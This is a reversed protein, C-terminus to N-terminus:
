RAPSPIGAEALAALLADHVRGNTAVCAGRDLVSPGGSWGTVRGGAEEVLLTGAALDWPKLKMEWYGDFRGAAVLALDLAASGFRRVGQARKQLATFQALNDDASEASDYPFGTALLAHELRAEDSVRIPAGGLTAGEGRRAAFTLGLAPAHVVGVEVAGGSQPGGAGGDMSPPLGGRAKPGPGLPPPGLERAISVCFLPLGHAFNTTGDLPDVLWRAGSGGARGGGEEAVVADDPFAAALRAVLLAEAARDFETVLDRESAKSQARAHGGLPVAGSWPGRGGAFGALLLEGAAVAAELAVTLADPAM